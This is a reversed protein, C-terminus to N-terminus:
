GYVELTKRKRVWLSKVLTHKLAPSLWVVIIMIAAAKILWNVTYGISTEAKIAVIAFYPVWAWWLPQKLARVYFWRFGLGLLLGYLGVALIGGWPGFNIYMEGVYGLEMSTSGWLELGTYRMYDKRGGVEGKEPNLFRPVIAGELSNVITKGHAYPKFKPTWIMARNVIWGQNLRVITEALKKDTLLIKPHTLVDFVLTTFAAIRSDAIKTRGYWFQDRYEQKVSLIVMIGVAGLLIFSIVRQRSWQRCYSMFLVIFAGWLVLDHFSGGILTNSLLLAAVIGIRLKWGSINLMMYGFVGVFSLNALLVFVFKLISPSVKQLFTAAIGVLFIVHFEEKLQRRTIPDIFTNNFKIDYRHTIIPLVIGVTFLLCAPTVYSIYLPLRMQIDYDPHHYPFYWNGWAAIILQVCAILIALQPVPIIFQSAFGMNILTIAALM